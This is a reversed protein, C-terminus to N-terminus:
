KLCLNDKQAKRREKLKGVKGRGREARESYWRAHNKDVWDGSAIEFGPYREAPIRKDDKNEGKSALWKGKRQKHRFRRHQHTPQRKYTNSM